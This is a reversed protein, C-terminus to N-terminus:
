TLEGAFAKQLLSQRLNAIKSLQTTYESELLGVNNRQIELEQVMNKQIEDDPVPIELKRLDSLNIGKYAAGKTVGTLWNQASTSSIYYAVFLPDAAAVDVMAVERSVNWGAMENPVVAVGGLTGRVNVLVEGGKLITRSYEKSLSEAIKKMGDTEIGLPKVNSTRLCPVGNEIHDGLKIVGYTVGRDACLDILYCSKGDNALKGFSKNLIETFLDEADKLNREANDRARDLAAFAQDLVAVIRKQEDLPPFPIRLGEISKKNIQPFVAGANGVIEPQLWLLVYWLYNRDIENRARIAALGRGICIKETTENVPGVPARVSMLIDGVEAIKTIAKTWTSPAALYRETFEKKGQYFPLGQGKDNYASSEPSQGAIVDCVDGLSCM